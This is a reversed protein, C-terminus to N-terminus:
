HLCEGHKMEDPRPLTALSTKPDNALSMADGERFGACRQLLVAQDTPLERVGIYLPVPMAAADRLHSREALDDVDAANIGRRMFLSVRAVLRACAEYDWPQPM